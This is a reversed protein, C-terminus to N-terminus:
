YHFSADNTKPHLGVPQCYLTEPLRQLATRQEDDGWGGMVDLM